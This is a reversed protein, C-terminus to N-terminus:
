NTPTKDWAGFPKPNLEQLLCMDQNCKSGQDPCSCSAVSGHKVRVDIDTQREREEEKGGERGRGRESLDIFVYGQMLIEKNYNGM